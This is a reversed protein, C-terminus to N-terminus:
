SGGSRATTASSAACRSAGFNAQAGFLGFLVDGGQLRDRGVRTFVFPSFRQAL